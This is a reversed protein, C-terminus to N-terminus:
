VHCPLSPRSATFTVRHSGGGGQMSTALPGGGCLALPTGTFLYTCCGTGLDIVTYYVHYYLFM